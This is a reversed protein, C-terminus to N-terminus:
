AAQKVEEDSHNNPNLTVSKVPQWNRTDGSWRLPNRARAAEYVQKRKALIEADEGRHRQDPTVYQIESHRHEQNYWLVFKNVWQRAEDLSGFPQSPYSPVYKMTKFLAESYANDNSVAPRSFSAVVGLRQLTALMTAGKMPSGNDSHLVTQGPKLREKLSIKQLLAAASESSEQELIEWGVIRRSYLDMFLYLYFFSGRIPSRLYTIDWSLVEGPGTAMYEAPKERKVAQAERGRRHLQQAEKLIRYFTSESALYEGEDALRPVIQKPSLSQHAPQHCCELVARREEASLRNQPNQERDQRGDAMQHSWRQLSRVSVGIVECARTKTAGHHVAEEILQRAM